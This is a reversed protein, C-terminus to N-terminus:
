GEAHRHYRWPARLALRELRSSVPAEVGSRCARLSAADPRYERELVPHGFM